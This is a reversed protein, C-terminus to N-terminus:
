FAKVSDGEIEGFFENANVAIIYPQELSGYSNAKKEVAYKLSEGTLIYGGEHGHSFAVLIREVKQKQQEQMRKSCRPLASFIARFGNDCFIFAESKQQKLRSLADGYDI